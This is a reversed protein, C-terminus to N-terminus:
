RPVAVRQWPESCEAVYPYYARAGPCWFWDDNRPAANAVPPPPPPMATQAQPQEVYVPPAVAVPPVVVVPAPYPYAYYPAPWGFPRYYPGVPWPTGFYLGLHVNSRVRPRDAWASGAALATVCALLVGAALKNPFNM